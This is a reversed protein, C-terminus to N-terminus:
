RTNHIRTSQSRSLTWVSHAREVVVNGSEFVINICAISPMANAWRFSKNVNKEWTCRVCVCTPLQLHGYWTVVQVEVTDLYRPPGQDQTDKRAFSTGHIVYWKIHLGRYSPTCQISVCQHAKTRRIKYLWPCPTNSVISAFAHNFIFAAIAWNPSRWVSSRFTEPEIGSRPMKKALGRIKTDTCSMM